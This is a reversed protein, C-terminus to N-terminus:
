PTVAKAIAARIGAQAEPWEDDGVFNPSWNDIWGMVQRLAALLDPAAAILRANANCELYDGVMWAVAKAGMPVGTSQIIWRPPEQSIEWPEPTHKADKTM